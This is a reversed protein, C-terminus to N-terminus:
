LRKIMLAVWDNEREERVVTYGCEAVSAKVEDARMEIIGSLIIPADKQM